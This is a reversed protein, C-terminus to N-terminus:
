VYWDRNLIDEQSIEWFNGNEDYIAKNIDDYKLYHGKGWAKRKIKYGSILLSLAYAFSMM